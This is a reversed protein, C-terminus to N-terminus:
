KRLRLTVGYTAPDGPYVNYSTGLYGVSPFGGKTYEEDFINRGWLQVQWGGDAGGLGVSANFLAFDDQNAFPRPDLSTTHAFESTYTVEGRVFGEMTNGIPQTYTGTLSGVFDSNGRDVGTLDNFSATVGGENTRENGPLCLEFMPDSPDFSDPCPAFQYDGYENHFLWTFGGTFFLRDTPAWQSEFELGAVEISGANDLAFGNGVFNNSQFDEIEQAFLAVAYIFRNNGLAGKAGIEASQAQEDQFEFVGTKAADVSVNFGGPKFGTAYSAYVNFTPTVDYSAIVNYSFNSDSRSDPFAAANVPPWNQFATFGLLQNIAPNRAQEDTLPQTPDFPLGAGALLAPILYACADGGIIPFLTPDCTTPSVLRLDQGVDVFSFASIPDPNNISTEMDKDEEAYRAGVTMTLKDTLNFDLKGFISVAETDYNYAESILGHQTSIFGEAPVTPLSANGSPLPVFNGVGAANNNNLFFELLSVGGLGPPLGLGAVIPAVQPASAFDFFARADAGYPTANTYELENKYYFAGAMWDIFNSGTSAFRFEQTFSDYENTIARTSVLDLDSFDADFLQDEDYHRYATISTFTFTDFDHNLEGSIGSTKLETRVDGDIAIDGDFPDAPLATGGLGVLAAQDIPDYFAFPAACCNEDIVGYDGIIRISTNEGPEILLQGRYTQRDRNNIQSGDTVDELYGDNTHYSADFRGAMLGEVIPGTISGKAIFQGYNGATLEGEAGFDYEPQKTIISVVGAPTNRGFLTSQPGRIVEVREVSILDNIASGTRPRYVGDVFVGVSPELGPNFSSTGIGRLAFETNTSSAFEAVRLSPVLTMLDAADRIQSQEIQEDTVVAVSVPTEQLTQERKQATVTIEDIQAHAAGTVILSTVIATSGLTALKSIRSM